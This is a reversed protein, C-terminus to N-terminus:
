QENSVGQVLPSGQGERFSLSVVEEARCEVSSYQKGQRPM